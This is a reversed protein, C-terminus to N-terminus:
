NEILTWRYTKVQGSYPVKERKILNKELLEEISERQYKASVRHKKRLMTTSIIPKEVEQEIAESRIAAIIKKENKTLINGRKLLRNEEQLKQLEKKLENISDDEVGKPTANPNKYSDEFDKLSRRKSLSKRQHTNAEQSSNKKKNLDNLTVTGM